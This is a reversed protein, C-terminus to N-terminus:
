FRMSGYGCVCVDTHCFVCAPEVCWPVVHTDYQTFHTHQSWVGPVHPDYQHFTHTIIIVHLPSAWKGRHRDESVPVALGASQSHVKVSCGRCCGGHSDGRCCVGVSNLSWVHCNLRTHPRIWYPDSELGARISCLEPELGARIHCLLIIRQPSPQSSSLPYWLTIMQPSPQSWVSEEVQNLHCILIRSPPLFSKSM